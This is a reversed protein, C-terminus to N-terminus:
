QVLASRLQYVCLPVSPQAHIELFYSDYSVMDNSFVGSVEFMDHLRGAYSDLYTQGDDMLIVAGHPLLNLFSSELYESNIAVITIVRLM